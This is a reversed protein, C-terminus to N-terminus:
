LPVTWRVGGEEKGANCGERVQGIRHVRAMAQLGACCHEGGVEAQGVEEALMVATEEGGEGARDQACTGNGAPGVSRGKKGGHGERVGRVRRIRHVHAMAQLGFCCEEGVEETM